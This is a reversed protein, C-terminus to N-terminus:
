DDIKTVEIKYIYYDEWDDDLMQNEINEKEKKAEELTDWVSITNDIYLNELLVDMEEYITVAYKTM